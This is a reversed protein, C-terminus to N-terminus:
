MDKSCEQQMFNQFDFNRSTESVHSESQQDFTSNHINKPDLSANLDVNEENDTLKDMFTLREEEYTIAM